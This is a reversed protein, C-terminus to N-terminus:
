VFREEERVRISVSSVRFPSCAGRRLYPPTPTTPYEVEEGWRGDTEDALDTDDAHLEMLLSLFDTEDAWDAGDAHLKM